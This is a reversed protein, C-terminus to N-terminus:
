SILGSGSASGYGILGNGSVHMCSSVNLCSSLQSSSTLIILFNLREWHPAGVNRIVFFSLVTHKIESELSSLLRMKPCIYGM